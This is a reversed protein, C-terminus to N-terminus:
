SFFRYNLAQQLWCWNTGCTVVVLPLLSRSLLSKWPRSSVASSSATPSEHGQCLFFSFELERKQIKWECVPCFLTKQLVNRAGQFSASSISQMACIREDDDPQKCELWIRIERELFAGVRGIYELSTIEKGRIIENLSIRELGVRASSRWSLRSIPFNERSFQISISVQQRHPPTSSIFFNMMRWLGAVALQKETLACFENRLNM